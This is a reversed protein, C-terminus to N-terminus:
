PKMYYYDRIWNTEQHEKLRKELAKSEKSEPDEGILFRTNGNIPVFTIGRNFPNDTDKTKPLTGPLEAQFSELMYQQLKDKHEKAIIFSDHVCLVPIGEQTCRNIIREAIRADINQLKVGYDNFFYKQIPKHAESFKNILGKIDIGEDFFWQYQEKDQNLTSRIAKIAAEESDANLATLLVKKLLDRMGRIHKYEELEYPDKGVEKWYDIGELGYLLIIHLGSYDIEVVPSGDIRIHERWESPISQWWGGYYRGGNDWSSRNFIRRVFINGRRLRIRKKQSRSYAGKEPYSHVDLHTVGLLNNYAYLDNRLTITHPTDKYDIDNKDKDRLIICETNPHNTVMDASIFYEDEILDILKRTARMRSKHSRRTSTRDYHGKTQELYGLKELNDIVSVSKYSIHLQNYRNMGEFKGKMRYFSIYGQDDELYRVYLDLVIVKIHRKQINEKGTFEPLDKFEKYLQDVAQNVEPFESWTHVDLDRSNGLEEARQKDADTAM